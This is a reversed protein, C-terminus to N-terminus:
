RAQAPLRPPSRTPTTTPPQSRSTAMPPTSARPVGILGGLATNLGQMTAIQGVGTGFTVTLAPNAGVTVVLQDNNAAANQTVLNVPNVPRDLPRARHAAIATHRRRCRHGDNSNASTLVLHHTADQTATVRHNRDPRQHRHPDRRCQGGPNITIPQGNIVLTGGASSLASLDAGTVTAPADPLLTAGRRRDSIALQGAGSHGAPRAWQRRRRGPRTRLHDAQPGGPRRQRQAASRDLRGCANTAAPLVAILVCVSLKRLDDFVSLV